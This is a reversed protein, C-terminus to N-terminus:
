SKHLVSVEILRQETALLEPTTWRRVDLHAPVVTGDLRRLVDHTRLREPVGLAIVHHSALFAEALTVVPNLAESYGAVADVEAEATVPDAPPADAIPSAPAPAVTM